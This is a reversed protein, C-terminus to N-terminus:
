VPSGPRSPEESGLKQLNAQEAARELLRILDRRVKLSGFLLTAFTLGLGTWGLWNVPPAWASLLGTFAVWLLV